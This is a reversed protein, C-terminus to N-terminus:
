KIIVKSLGTENSINDIIQILYVGPKYDSVSFDITSSTNLFGDQKVLRGESSILKFTYSRNNTSNFRIHVIGNAPNPYITYNFTMNNSFSLTNTYRVNGNKLNLKVRYFSRQFSIARDTFQYQNGAFNNHPALSGITFFNLGDTMKEIEFGAVNQEDRTAWDLTIGNGNKVGFLKGLSLPLVPYCSGDLHFTHLRTICGGNVTIKCVYVGTDTPLVYAVFYSSATSVLVSDTCTACTKKYWAYTANYITDVWLTTPEQFCNLTASIYTNALPMISVDNLAANGCADVCRLRILSYSTGNNINFVPSAQPTTIISPSAPISGIIEYTYPGVGYEAVASVSISGNNCQYASSKLLNPYQYPLVTVTDFISNNCSGTQYRIIYTAPVLDYYIYNGGSLHTPSLSFNVGNKKIIKSTLPDGFNTALFVQINSAGAPSVGSPCKGTVTLNHTAFSAVVNTYISDM